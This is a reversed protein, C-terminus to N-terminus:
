RAATHRRVAEAYREVASGPGPNAIAARLMPAMEGHRELHTYTFVVETSDPDAPNFEVVIVSANEDDPAPQWGPGIRWTVALRGPPAWETITGRVVETGDAGREYFRGGARPEMTLSEPDKVTLHERHQWEIQRETYIRFAEAPPAPVTVSVRPAPEEGTPMIDGKEMFNIHVVM